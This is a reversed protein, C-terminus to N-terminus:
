INYGAQSPVAYKLFQAYGANIFDGFSQGDVVVANILLKRLHDLHTSSIKELTNRGERALLLEVKNHVKVL